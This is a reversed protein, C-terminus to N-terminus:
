ESCRGPRGRREGEAAARDCWQLISVITLHLAMAILTAEWIERWRGLLDQCLFPVPPVHLAKRLAEILPGPHAAVLLPPVVWRAFGAWGLGLAVYLM